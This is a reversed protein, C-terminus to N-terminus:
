WWKDVQDTVRLNRSKTKSIRSVFLAKQLATIQLKKQLNAKPDKGWRNRLWNPSRFDVIPDSSRCGQLRRKRCIEVIGLTEVWGDVLQSNNSKTWKYDNNTESITDSFRLNPGHNKRLKQMPHAHESSICRHWLLLSFHYRHCLLYIPPTRSRIHDCPAYKYNFCWTTTTGIPSHQRYPIM